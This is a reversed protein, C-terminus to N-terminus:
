FSTKFSGFYAAARENTEETVFSTTFGLCYLRDRAACVRFITYTGTQPDDCAYSLAPYRDLKTERPEELKGGIYAAMAEVVPEASDSLAKSTLAGPAYEAYLLSYTETSLDSQFLHAASAGESVGDPLPRETMGGPVSITCSAEPLEVLAATAPGRTRPTPGDALVYGAVVLPLLCPLFYLWQGPSRRGGWRAARFNMLAAPVFFCLPVAVFMVAGISDQLEIRERFLGITGYRVAWFGIVWLWFARKRLKTRTEAGGKRAAFSFGCDCEDTTLSVMTGCNPCTRTRKLAEARIAEQDEPSYQGIRELAALLYQDDCGQWTFGIQTPPNDTRL